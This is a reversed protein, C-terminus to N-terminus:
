GRQKPAILWSFGIPLAAASDGAALDILEVPERAGGGPCHIAMAIALAPWSAGSAEFGDAWIRLSAPGHYAHEWSEGRRAHAIRYVVDLGYQRALVQLCFLTAGSTFGALPEPGLRWRPEIEHMWLRGPDSDIVRLPAGAHEALVALERSAALSADVIFASLSRSARDAGALGALAPAASGAALASALSSHIFSRRTVM